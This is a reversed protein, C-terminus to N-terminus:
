WSTIEHKKFMWWAIGFMIVSFPILVLLDELPGISSTGYLSARLIDVGYTLPNLRGVIRLGLPYSSLPFFAGSLFILPGVFFTLFDNYAKITKFFLAVIVGFSAFGLVIIGVVPIALFIGWPSVHLMLLLIFLAIVITFIQQTAEGVIKGLLLAARSIPSILINKLTTERDQMLSVGVQMSTSIALIAILGAGFFGIYNGPTDPINIMRNLGAGVLFILVLPAVISMFVHVPDSRFKAVERQWITYIDRITKM